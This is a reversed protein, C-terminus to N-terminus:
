RMGLEILRNYKAVREGRDMGGLKVFDAAVEVAFDTIWFDDTEQGRHSVVIKLGADKAMKVAEKSESITGIQNPKIVVANIAKKEIAMKIREPNTVTLDDGVILYDKGMLGMLATWKDWDEDSYPDEISIIPYDRTLATYDLVEGAAFTDAVDVALKREPLVKKITDLVQLNNFDKPSFGGEAGVTHEINNETLYEKLTKFDRMAQELTDEVALFEQITINKNGHEGGEVLLLMLKPFNQSKTNPAQHKFFAASVALTANGGYGHAAIEQDLTEQTWEKDKCVVGMEGIEKIAEDPASKKVEYKGASIGAPVSASSITGNDFTITAEVTDDGLSAIIKRAAISSIKM